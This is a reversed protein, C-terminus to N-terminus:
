EKGQAKYIDAEALLVDYVAQAYNAKAQALALDADSVELQKALGQAYRSRVLRLSREAAQITREQAIVRQEAEVFSAGALQIETGVLNKVFELRKETQLKAITSQQLRSDTRFGNFVPVSIQLGVYSSQPFPQKSFDFNDGQSVIQYQGFAAVSPLYAAQHSAVEANLLERQTTIQKVDPRGEFAARLAPESSIDATRTSTQLSSNVLSLSLSDTLQLISSGELGLAIALAARALKTGNVVKTLSPRLNEVGVFARLTDTETALGKAMLSRVQALTEEGRQISQQLLRGQEEIMLVDLYAKKVDRAKQIRLAQTSQKALTQAIESM